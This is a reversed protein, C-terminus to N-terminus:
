VQVWDNLLGPISSRFIQFVQEDKASENTTDNGLDTEQSRTSNNKMITMMVRAM